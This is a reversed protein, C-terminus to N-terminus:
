HHSPQQSYLREIWALAGLALTVLLTGLGYGQTTQETICYMLFMFLDLTILAFLAGTVYEGQGKYWVALQESM